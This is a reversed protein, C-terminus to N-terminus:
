EKDEDRGHALFKDRIQELEKINRAEIESGDKFRVRVKRGERAPLWATLIKFLEAGAGVLLGVLLGSEFGVSKRMLALERFNLGVHELQEKLSAVDGQYWDNDVEFFDGVSIDVARERDLEPKMPTVSTIKM